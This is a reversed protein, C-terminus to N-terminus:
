QDYLLGQIWISSSKYKVLLLLEYVAFLVRKAEYVAFLVRWDKDALHSCKPVLSFISALTNSSGHM